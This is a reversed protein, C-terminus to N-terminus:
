LEKQKISQFLLELHCTECYWLNIVTTESVGEHDSRFVCKVKWYYLGPVLQHSFELPSYGAVSSAHM